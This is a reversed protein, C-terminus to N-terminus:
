QRTEQDVWHQLSGFDILIISIAEQGCRTLWPGNGAGAGRLVTRSLKGDYPELMKVSVRRPRGPQRAETGNSSVRKEALQKATNHSRTLLLRLVKVKDWRAVKVAKAICLQLRRVQCRAQELHISDWSSSENILAGTIYVTRQKRMESPEEFERAILCGNSTQVSNVPASAVRTERQAMDCARDVPKGSPMRKKWCRKGADGVARRVTIGARRQVPRLWPTIVNQMNSWRLCRLHIRCAPPLHTGHLCTRSRCGRWGHLCLSAHKRGILGLLGTRV